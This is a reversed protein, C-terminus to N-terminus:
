RRLPLRGPADRPASPADAVNENDSSDVVNNGDEIDQATMYERTPCVDEPEPELATYTPMATATAAPAVFM